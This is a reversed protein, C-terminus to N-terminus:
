SRAIQREKTLVTAREKSTITIPGQIWLEVSIGHMGFSGRAQTMYAGDKRLGFFRPKPKVVGETVTRLELVIPLHNSSNTTLHVLHAQSFMDMWDKSALCRDLRERTYNPSIVNNCWTYKFRSYGVDFLGCDNVVQCFFEMQWAPSRRRHSVHEDSSLVESFDGM